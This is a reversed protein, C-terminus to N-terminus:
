TLSAACNTSARRGPSALLPPHAPPRGCLAAPQGTSLPTTTDTAVPAQDPVRHSMAGATVAAIPRHRPRTPPGARNEQVHQTGGSPHVDPGGLVPGVPCGDPPISNRTSGPVTMSTNLSLSRDSASAM